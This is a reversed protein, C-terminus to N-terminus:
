HMTLKAMEVVFTKSRMFSWRRWQLVPYMVHCRARNREKTVNRTWKSYRWSLSFVHFSLSARQRKDRADLWPYTSNYVNTATYSLAEKFDDNEFPRRFGTNMIRISFLMVSPGFIFTGRWECSSWDLDSHCSVSSCKIWAEERVRGPSTSSVWWSVLWSWSHNRYSRRTNSVHLWSLPLPVIVWLRDIMGLCM